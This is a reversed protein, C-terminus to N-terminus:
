AKKNMFEPIFIDIWLYPHERKASNYNHHELPLFGLKEKYYDVSDRKAEVTIVRIVIRNKIDRATILARLVLYRGVGMRQFDKHVGLRAIKIAPVETLQIGDFYKEKEKPAIRVSDSCLTIFGIIQEQYTCIYTVAFGREQYKLADNKLFENLDKCEEKSTCDFDSVDHFKALRALSLKEIPLQEGM